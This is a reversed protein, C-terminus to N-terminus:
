GNDFLLNLLPKYTEGHKALVDEFEPYSLDTVDPFAARSAM